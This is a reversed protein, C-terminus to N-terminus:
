LAITVPKCALYAANWAYEDARVRAVDTAAAGAAVLAEANSLFSNLTPAQVTSLALSEQSASTPLVMLVM